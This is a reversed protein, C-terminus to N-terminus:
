SKEQGTLQELYSNAMDFDMGVVAIAFLPILEEIMIILMVSFGLRPSFATGSDMVALAFLALVIILVLFTIAIRTLNKNKIFLAELSKRRKICVILPLILIAIMIIILSYPQEISIIEPLYYHFFVVWALMLISFLIFMGFEKKEIGRGPVGALQLNEEKGENACFYYYLLIMFVVSFNISEIKVIDQYYSNNLFYILLFTAYVLLILVIILYIIKKSRCKKFMRILLIIISPILLSLFICAWFYPSLILKKHYDEIEVVHFFTRNSMIKNLCSENIEALFKHTGIIKAEYSEGKDLIITNNDQDIINDKIVANTKKDLLDNAFNLKTNKFLTCNLGCYYTINHAPDIKVILEEPIDRKAKVEINDIDPPIWNKVKDWHFDEYDMKSSININKCINKIISTSINVLITEGGSLTGIYIYVKGQDDLYANDNKSKPEKDFDSEIYIGNSNIPPSKRFDNNIELKKPPRKLFDSLYAYISINRATASADTELNTITFYIIIPQEYTTQRENSSINLKLETVPEPDHGSCTAGYLIFLLLSIIIIPLLELKM